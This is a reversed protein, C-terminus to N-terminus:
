IAMAELAANPALPCSAHVKTLPAPIEPIWSLCNYGKKGFFSFNNPKGGM